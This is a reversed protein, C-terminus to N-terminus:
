RLYRADLEPIADRMAHWCDDCVIGADKLEAPSFAAEAEAQADHDPDQAYTKGCAECRYTDAPM